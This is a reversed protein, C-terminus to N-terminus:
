TKGGICTIPPVFGHYNAQNYYDPVHSTPNDANCENVRAMASEKDDFPIYWVEGGWGRESEIFKVMHKPEIKELIKNCKEFTEKANPDIHEMAEKLADSVEKLFETDM